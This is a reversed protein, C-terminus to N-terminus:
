VGVVCEAVFIKKNKDQALFKSWYILLGPPFCFRDAKPVFLEPGTCQETVTSEPESQVAIKQYPAVKDRTSVDSTVDIYM